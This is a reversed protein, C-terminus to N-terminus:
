GGDDKPYALVGAEWKNFEGRLREFTQPEKNKFNAQEHEDFALDFLFENKGERIYKWKGSRLAGQAYTRWFFTRDYLGRKGSLVAKLDEGDLPYAPAPTAGAAAIMTATWDMTTAAQETVRGAGVVGPWRVIAPVRLGGEWLHMKQFSFPWNYSYREGGNDSTFIVLTDREIKARELAKLV